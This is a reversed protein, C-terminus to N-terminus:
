RFHNVLPFYDFKFTFTDTLDHAAYWNGSATAGFLLGGWLNARGPELFMPTRLYEQPRNAVYDGSSDLLYTPVRPETLDDFVTQSLGTASVTWQIDAMAEDVPVLYFADIDINVPQGLSNSNKIRVRWKYSNIAGDLKPITIYGMDLVADSSPALGSVTANETISDGSAGGHTLAWTIVAAATASVQDLRLLGRYRGAMDPLNKTLEYTLNISGSAANSTQTFRLVSGGHAGAVGTTTATALTGQVDRVVTYGPYTTGAGSVADTNFDFIYNSANGHTKRFFIGRRYPASSDPQVTVRVPTAVEGTVTAPMVYVAGSASVGGGNKVAASTVTTMAQPRGYPKLTLHLKAAIFLPSSANATLIDQAFNGVDLEGGLVEYVMTNTMAGLQVSLYARDGIGPNSPEWYAHVQELVDTIQRYNVVWDDM